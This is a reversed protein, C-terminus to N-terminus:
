AYAAIPEGICECEAPRTEELQNQRNFEIWQLVVNELDKKARQVEFQQLRNEIEVEAQRSEPTQDSTNISLKGEPNAKIMTHGNSLCVWHLDLILSDKMRAADSGTLIKDFACLNKQAKLRIQLAEFRPTKEFYEQCYLDQQSTLTERGKFNWSGADDANDKSAWLVGWRSIICPQTNTCDLAAPIEYVFERANDKLKVIFTKHLGTGIEYRDARPGPLREYKSFAFEFIPINDLEDPSVATAEVVHSNIKWKGGRKKVATVTGLKIVDDQTVGGLILIEPFALIKHIGTEMVKVLRNEKM